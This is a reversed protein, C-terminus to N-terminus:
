LGVLVQGVPAVTYGRKELRDIFYEAPFRLREPEAHYMEWFEFGDALSRMVADLMNESETEWTDNENSDM